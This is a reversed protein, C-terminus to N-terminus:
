RNQVQPPRPRREDRHIFLLEHSYPALSRRACQGTGISGAIVTGRSDLIGPYDTTDELCIDFAQDTSSFNGLIIAWSSDERQYGSLNIDRGRKVRVPLEDVEDHRVFRAHHYGFRDLIQLDRNIEDVDSWLPWPTLDNALLLTMMEHTARRQGKATPEDLEPLFIIPYGWVKKNFGVSLSNPKLLKFYSGKVKGRYQEGDVIVDSFQTMPLFNHGSAHSIIQFQPHALKVEEYIAKMLLRYAFLPYVKVQEVSDGEVRSVSIAYPRINDMYVADLNYTDVMEGIKTAIFNRWSAERADMLGLPGGMALVDGSSSDYQGTAWQKNFLQWAPTDTSLFTPCIYPATHLGRATDRLVEANFRDHDAAQPYGYYSAWSSDRGPWRIRLYPNVAPMIRLEERRDPAMRTPTPLVGLRFTSNDNARLAREHLKVRITTCLDDREFTVEDYTGGGIGATNYDTFVFVGAGERGLWFYPKNAYRLPKNENDMRIYPDDGGADWVTHYRAVDNSVSLVVELTAGPVESFHRPYKIRLDLLSDYEVTGDVTIAPGATQSHKTFNAAANSASQSGSVFQVPARQSDRTTYVVELPKCLLKNSGVSLSNVVSSGTIDFEARAARISGLNIAVPLWPEPVGKSSNQDSEIAGSPVTITKSALIGGGEREVIAMTIQRDSPGAVRDYPISYIFPCSSIAQRDIVRRGDTVEIQAGPVCLGSSKAVKVEIHNDSDRKAISVQFSTGPRQQSAPPPLPLAEKRQYLQKIQQADLAYEYVAVEDLVTSGIKSEGWRLDGLTFKDGFIFPHIVPTPRKSVPVGDVYLLVGDSNWVAALHTWDESEKDIRKESTAFPGKNPDPAAAILFRNSHYYKYLFLSGQKSRADFFVHFLSDNYKWDQPKFWLSVTGADENIIGSAPFELQGARPGVILGRGSIGRVWQPNLTNSPEVVESGKSAVLGDEFSLIFPHGSNAWAADATIGALVLASLVAM